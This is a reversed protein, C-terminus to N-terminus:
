LKAIKTPKGPEVSAAIRSVRNKILDALSPYPLIRLM